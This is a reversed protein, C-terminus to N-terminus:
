PERVKSGGLLGLSALLLLLPAAIIGFILAEHKELLDFLPQVFHKHTALAPIDFVDELHGILKSALSEKEESSDEGAETDAKDKAEADEKEQIKEQLTVNCHDIVARPLGHLHVWCLLGDTLLILFCQSRQLM